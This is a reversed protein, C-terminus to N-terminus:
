RLLNMVLDVIDDSSKYKTNIRIHEIGDLVEEYRDNIAKVKSVEVYDDGREEIRKSITEVDSYLYIVKTNKRKMMNEILRRDFDSIVAFDEYLHAYVLNSYIFRDFLTNHAKNLMKTFSTFLEDETCQSQEFSSGKVVPMGTKFNLKNIVTTKFNCENGEVVINM